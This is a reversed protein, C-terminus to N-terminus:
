LHLIQPQSLSSSLLGLGCCIHLPLALVSEWIERAGCGSSFWGSACDHNPVNTFLSNVRNKCRREQKKRQQFSLFLFSEEITSGPITVVPYM